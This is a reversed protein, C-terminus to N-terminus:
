CEYDFESLGGSAEVYEKYKEITFEEDTEALDGDYYAFIMTIINEMTTKPKYGCKRIWIAMKDYDCMKEKPYSTYDAEETWKGYTDVM